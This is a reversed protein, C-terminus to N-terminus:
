KVSQSVLSAKDKTSISAKSLAVVDFSDSWPASITESAKRHHKNNQLQPMSVCIVHTDVQGSITVNLTNNQVLNAQLRWAAINCFKLTNRSLVPPTKVNDWGGGMFYAQPWWDKFDDPDARGDWCSSPDGTGADQYYTWKGICQGADSQDLVNWETVDFTTGSWIQTGESGSASGGESGYTVTENISSVVQNNVSTRANSNSPSSNSLVVGSGKPACGITCELRHHFFGKALDPDNGDRNGGKLLQDSLLANPSLEGEEICVVLYTTAGNKLDPYIYYNHLLTVDYRQTAGPLLDYTLNASVQVKPPQFTGYSAGPISPVMNSDDIGATM